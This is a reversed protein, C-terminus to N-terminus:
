CSWMDSEAPTVLWPLGTQVVAICGTYRIFCGIFSCSWMDSEVPTVLWPLGTQVVAICGTYRIFCGVTLGVSQMDTM